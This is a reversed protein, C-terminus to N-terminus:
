KKPPPPAPLPAQAAKVFADLFRPMDVADVITVKHGFGKPAISLPWVHAQGYDMGFDTDVDMVAEVTRTALAPDVAFAAAMEDWLPLKAPYKAIFETVPTRVRLIRAVLADTMLSENTVSGLITIKPWAANLVIHAAEPDFLFNFDSYVNADIRIKAMETDLMGGMIVIDRALAAFDPDLRIALAINTLPGAALISVQHPYRHVQAILFDAASGSAARIAPNGDPHPPVYNPSAAHPAYDPTAATNWAGKWPMTGYLQEWVHLREPTNILPYVAGKYVPLESRHAIELFRLLDNTEEDCWGNGTVVTFGLVRIAPNTVLPLISQMDSGGPGLFDNDEIFLRTQAWAAGGMLVFSACFLRLLSSCFDKQKKKKLFLLIQEKESSFSGFLSKHGQRTM